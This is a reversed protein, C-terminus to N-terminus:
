AVNINDSWCLKNWNENKIDCFIDLWAHIIFGLKNFLKSSQILSMIWKECLIIMKLLLTTHTYIYIYSSSFPFCFLNEKAKLINM